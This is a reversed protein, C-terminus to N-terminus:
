GDETAHFVGGRDEVGVLRVAFLFQVLFSYGVLGGVLPKTIRDGLAIPMMEPQRFAEGGVERCEPQTVGIAVTGKASGQPPTRLLDERIGRRELAGDDIRGRGVQHPQEVGVVVGLSGPNKVRQAPEDAVRREELPYPLVVLRIAVTGGERALKG